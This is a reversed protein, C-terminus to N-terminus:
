EGGARLSEIIKAVEYSHVMDVMTSSFRVSNNHILDAFPKLVREREDKRTLADHQQCDTCNAYHDCMCNKVFRPEQQSHSACGVISTFLWAGRPLRMEEKLPYYAEEEDYPCKTTNSHECTECRQKHPQNPTM